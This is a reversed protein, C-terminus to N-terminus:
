YSSLSIAAILIGSTRTNDTKHTNYISMISVFGRSLKIQVMLAGVPKRKEIKGSLTSELTLYMAMSIPLKAKQLQM